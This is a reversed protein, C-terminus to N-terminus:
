KFLSVAYNMGSNIEQPSYVTRSGRSPLPDSVIVNGGDTLGYAYVIHGTGTYPRSDGSGGLIVTKGQRLSSVVRDIDDGLYSYNLGFRQKGHRALVLGVYNSNFENEFSKSWRAITAPNQDKRDLMNVLGMAYSTAGCGGVGVTTHGKFPVDNWSPDEQSFYRVLGPHSNGNREPIDTSKEGGNNRRWSDNNSNQSPNLQRFSIVGPGIHDLILDMEIAYNRILRDQNEKGAESVPTFSALIGRITTKGQSLYKRFYYQPMSDVGAGAAKMGTFDDRTFADKFSDYQCAHHLNGSYGDHYDEHPKGTPCDRNIPNHTQHNVCVSGGDSCAQSELHSAAMLYIPNMGWKLAGDVLYKIDDIMPSNPDRDKLYQTIGKILTDRDLVRPALASYKDNAFHLGKGPKNIVGPESDGSSHNPNTEPTNEAYQNIVNPDNIADVVSLNLVSSARLQTAGALDGQAELAKAKAEIDLIQLQTESDYRGINEPSIMNDWASSMDKITTEDGDQVKVMLDEFMKLYGDMMDTIKDAPNSPDPAGGRLVSISKSEQASQITTVLQNTMTQQIKIERDPSSHQPDQEANDSHNNNGSRSETGQNQDTNAGPQPMGAQESVQTTDPKQAGPTDPSTPGGASPTETAVPPTSPNEGEIQEVRPAVPVSDPTIERAQIPKIAVNAPVLAIVAKGTQKQPEPDPATMIQPELKSSPDSTAPTYDIPDANIVVADATVEQTVQPETEVSTKPPTSAVIAPTETTPSGQLLVVPSQEMAAVQPSSEAAFAANPAINVTLTAAIAVAPITQRLRLNPAKGRVRSVIGPCEEVTYGSPPALVSVTDKQGKHRLRRELEQRRHRGADTSADSGLEAFLKALVPKVNEPATHTAEYISSFFAATYKPSAPTYTRMASIVSEAEEASKANAVKDVLVQRISSQVAFERAEIDTNPSDLLLGDISPVYCDGNARSVLVDVPLSSAQESLRRSLDVNNRVGVMALETNYVEASMRSMSM